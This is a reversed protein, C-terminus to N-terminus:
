EYGRDKKNGVAASQRGREVQQKAEDLRALLSPKGKSAPPQAPKASAVRERSSKGVQSFTQPPQEATQERKTEEGLFNPLEAFGVSDVFHSSIDGRWQLVIVDSVSVSRAHYDAPREPNEGQFDAYIKHLNTQTDRIDLNGTYVLEYNARDVSLGLAEFERMPAFRFDRAEDIGDHIQYIGFKNERGYLLDAERSGESNAAVAMQAAYVPSMEWDAKTIGCLGEGSFTIIEDRDLALAETNDPYLLYIPHGTDFLEVARGGSLPLMDPETYGYKNMEDASRTPDPLSLDLEATKPKEPKETEPMIPNGDADFTVRVENDEGLVLNAKVPIFGQEAINDLWQSAFSDLRSQLTTLTHVEGSAGVSKGVGHEDFYQYVPPISQEFTCASMTKGINDFRFEMMPDYCLDGNLEYTHMVSIRDGFIWELSLPEFASPRGGGGSELRMYSYKGNAFDPFLEAFKEYLKNELTNKVETSDAPQGAQRKQEIPTLRVAERLKRLYGGFISSDGKHKSSYYRYGGDTIEALGTNVWGQTRLPLDIGYLKFLDLVPNKGDYDNENYGVSIAKGSNIASAIEDVRADYKEENQRKEEQRKSEAEAERTKREEERLKRVPTNHTECEGIRNLVAAHQYKVWMKPDALDKEFREAILPIAEDLEAETPRHIEWKRTEENWEDRFYESTHDIMGSATLFYLAKSDSEDRSFIQYKGAPEEVTVRIKKGDRNFNGDIFVPSLLATAGVAPNTNTIPLGNFLFASYDPIALAASRQTLDLSVQGAAPAEVSLDIGREKALARYQSDIGDILEAAAKRITDLSANLEKLERTKSWEAIYGLSNAGTEVGYYQCVSYSVSEAEVEETRRDKPNEGNDKIIQLDHLKAHTIEHIAASVTQIESMGNRISIRDGFHCTGDTDDPLDEFSIPLPSVARLADMFLEYRAVDGILTEALVPLPEGETQSVDFVPVVKFRASQTKVYEEMVPQGDEGIIPQKTVPDLQELEEKVVFPVPAFIRIGHEGKKVQRNFKNKWDNYGAVRTAEPMQLHILLTNRTSYRHFRSMTQLYAAYKDSEFLDKMGNELRDTIEKVASIDAM